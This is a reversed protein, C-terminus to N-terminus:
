YGREEVKAAIEEASLGSIETLSGGGLLWRRQFPAKDEWARAAVYVAEAESPPLVVIGNDDAVVIDGPNVLVGGCQIPLNVGGEQNLRRGVLAAIGRVFTPMRMEKIELVDTCSGDIIVGVAGRVKTALSTMEGWSAAHRDGAQDVVLIDGDGLAEVAARTHTVDGPVMKLTVARGVVVSGIEYIPRIETALFGTLRIHGITAPPVSGFGEIVHRPVSVSPTAAQTM